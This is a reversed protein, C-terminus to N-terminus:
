FVPQVCSVIAYCVYTVTINSSFNASGINFKPSVFMAGVPWNIENLLDEM